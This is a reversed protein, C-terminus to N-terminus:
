RYDIHRASKSSNCSRCLPQINSADNRGGQSIPIVHDITLEIEPEQKHCCLCQYNYRAKLAQWDAATFRGGLQRKLARRTHFYIRVRERNKSAWLKVAVKRQERHKAYNRRNQEHMDSRRAAYLERRRQKRQEPTMGPKRPPRTRHYQAKRYALACLKCYWHLGDPSASCGYFETVAKELGCKRCRKVGEIPPSYNRATSRQQLHRVSHRCAKCTAQTGRKAHKHFDIYPKWEKCKICVRGEFPLTHQIPQPISKM